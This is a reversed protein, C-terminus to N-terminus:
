CIPEFHFLFAEARARACTAAAASAVLQMNRVATCHMCLTRPHLLSSGVRVISVLFGIPFRSSCRLTFSFRRESLQNMGENLFVTGAAPRGRGPIATVWPMSSASVSLAAWRPQWVAYVRLRSSCGLTTTTTTTGGRAPLPSGATSQETRRAVSRKGCGLRM